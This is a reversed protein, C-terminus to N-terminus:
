LYQIKSKSDQSEHCSVPVSVLSEPKIGRALRVAVTTGDLSFTEVSLAKKTVEATEFTLYTVNKGPSCQVSRVTVDGSPFKSEFKLVIADGTASPISGCVEITRGDWEEQSSGVPEPSADCTDSEERRRAKDWARSVDLLDGDLNLDPKKLVSQAHHPPPSSVWDKLQLQPSSCVIAWRRQQRSSSSAQVASSRTVTVPRAFAHARLCCM